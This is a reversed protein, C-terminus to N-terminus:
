WKDPLTAVIHAHNYGHRILVKENNLITDYTVIGVMELSSLTEITEITPVHIVLVM